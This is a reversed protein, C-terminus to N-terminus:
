FGLSLIKYSYIAASLKIAFVIFWIDVIIYELYKKDIKQNNNTKQQKLVDIKEQNLDDRLKPMHNLEEKEVNKIVDINIYNYISVRSPASIPFILAIVFVLWLMYNCTPSIKKNTIKRVLLVVAGVVTAVISMYLIQCFLGVIIKQLEIM